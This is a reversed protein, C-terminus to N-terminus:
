FIGVSKLLTSAIFVTICSGITTAIVLQGALRADAGMEQAMPVTTVAVPTAFAAVFAAFQAGGFTNGFLLYAGGIGLIPVIVCRTVLGFTLERVSGSLSSFEFQAGLVLLALPTALSAVSSLSSYLFGIDSLRFEISFRVFLARIGLVALGLVVGDILPNKLIGLLISRVSVKKGGTCFVSLTIVALINYVPILIASLVSAVASGEAGFLSEALSIGIIAYNSRFVAQILTGRKAGDKVFIMVAPVAIAYIVFIACVAYVAFGPDVDGIGKIKYVNMFLLVPVFIRFVLKNAQKSFQEPMWGMRKLVYGLLIITMIPLVANLAFILSSM